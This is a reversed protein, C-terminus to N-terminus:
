ATCISILVRLRWEAHGDGLGMINAWQRRARHVPLLRVLGRAGFGLMFAVEEQYSCFLGQGWAWDSPRHPNSICVIRGGTSTETESAHGTEEIPVGRAREGMEDTEELTARIVRETGTETAGQGTRVIMLLVMERTVLIELDVDVTELGIMRTEPDVNRGPDLEKTRPFTPIVLHHQETEIATGVTVVKAMALRIHQLCLSIQGMAVGTHGASNRHLHPGGITIEEHGILGPHGETPHAMADIAMAGAQAARRLVRAPGNVTQAGALQVEQLHQHYTNNRDARM